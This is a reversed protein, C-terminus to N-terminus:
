NGDKKSLIYNTRTTSFLVATILAIIFWLIAGDMGVLIWKIVFLIVTMVMLIMAMSYALLETRKGM